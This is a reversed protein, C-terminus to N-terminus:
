IGLAKRFEAADEVFGAAELEALIAADQESIVPKSSPAEHPPHLGLARRLDAAESTMGAAELSAILQLDNESVVVSATVERKVTAQTHPAMPRRKLPRSSSKVPHRSGQVSGGIPGKGGLRVDAQEINFRGKSFTPLTYLGRYPFKSEGPGDGRITQSSCVLHRSEFNCVTSPYFVVGGSRDSAVANAVIRMRLVDSPKLQFPPCEVGAEFASQPPMLERVDPWDSLVREIQTQQYPEASWGVKTVPEHYSVTLTYSDIVVCNKLPLSKVIADMQRVSVARDKMDSGHGALVSLRTPDDGPIPSAFLVLTSEGDSAAVVGLSPSLLITSTYGGSGPSAFELLAKLDSKEFAFKALSM